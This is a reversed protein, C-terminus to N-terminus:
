ACELKFLVSDNSVTNNTYQVHPQLLPRQCPLVGGSSAAAAKQQLREIQLEHNAAMLREWSCHTMKCVYRKRAPPAKHQSAALSLRPIFYKWILTNWKLDRVALGTNAGHLMGRAKQKAHESSCRSCPGHLFSGIGDPM